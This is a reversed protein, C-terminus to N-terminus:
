EVIFNTEFSINLNSNEIIIKGEIINKQIEKLENYRKLVPLIKNKKLRLCGKATWPSLHKKSVNIPLTRIDIRGNMLKKPGGSIKLFSLKVPDSKNNM